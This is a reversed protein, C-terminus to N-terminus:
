VEFGHASVAMSVAHNANNYGYLRLTKGSAIKIPKSQPLGGGGNGGMLSLVLEDTVNYLTVEGIQNADRDAANYGWISFGIDTIYLTKGATWTLTIYGSGGV